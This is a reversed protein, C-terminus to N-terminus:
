RAGFRWHAPARARFWPVLGLSCGCIIPGAQNRSPFRATYPTRTSHMCEPAVSAKDSDDIARAYDHLALHSAARNSLSEFFDPDIQAM